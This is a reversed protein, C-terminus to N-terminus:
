LNRDLGARWQRPLSDEVGSATCLWAPVAASGGAGRAEVAGGGGGGCGRRGGLGRAGGQRCRCGRAQVQMGEGAGGPVGQDGRPM